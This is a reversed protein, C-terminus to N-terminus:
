RSTRSRTAAFCVEVTRRCRRRCYSSEFMSDLERRVRLLQDPELRVVLPRRTRIIRRGDVVETLKDWAGLSTRLNAREGAKEALKRM